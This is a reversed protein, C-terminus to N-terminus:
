SGALAVPNEAICSIQFDHVLPRFKGASPARVKITFVDIPMCIPISGADMRQKPFIHLFPNGALSASFPAKICRLIKYYFPKRHIVAKSVSKRSSPFGEVM